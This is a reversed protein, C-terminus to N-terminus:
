WRMNAKCDLSWKPAEEVRIQYTFRYSFTTGLWDALPPRIRRLRVGGEGLCMPGAALHGQKVRLTDSGPTCLPRITQTIM